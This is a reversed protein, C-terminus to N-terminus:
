LIRHYYLQFSLLQRLKKDTHFLFLFCLKLVGFVWHSTLFCKGWVGRCVVNSSSQGLTVDAAEGSWRNRVQGSCSGIGWCCSPLTILLIMYCTHEGGNELFIPFVLRWGPPLVLNQMWRYPSLALVFSLNCGSDLRGVPPINRRAVAYLAMSLSFFIM